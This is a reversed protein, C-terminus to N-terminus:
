LRCTAFVLKGRQRSDVCSASTLQDGLALENSLSIARKSLDIGRPFSPNGYGTMSTGAKM